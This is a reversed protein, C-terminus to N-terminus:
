KGKKYVNFKYSTLKALIMSATSILLSTIFSYFFKSAFVAKSTIGSGWGPYLFFISLIDAIAAIVYLWMLGKSISNVHESSAYEESCNRYFLITLLPLSFICLCYVFQSVQPFKSYTDFRQIGPLIAVMFDVFCRLYSSMDLINNPIIYTLILVLLWYNIILKEDKERINKASGKGWFLYKALIGKITM